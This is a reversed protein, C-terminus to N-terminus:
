GHRGGFGDRESGNEPLEDVLKGADHRAWALMFFALLVVAGYLPILVGPWHLLAALLRVIARIAPM